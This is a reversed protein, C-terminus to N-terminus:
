RVGQGGRGCRRSLPFYIVRSGSERCALGQRQPAQPGDGVETPSVHQRRLCASSLGPKEKGKERAPLLALSSPLYALVSSEPLTPREGRRRFSLPRPHPRADPPRDAACGGELRTNEM